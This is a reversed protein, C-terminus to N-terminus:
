RGHTARTLVTMMPLTLKHEAEPPARSGRNQQLHAASKLQKTQNLRETDQLTDPSPGPHLLLV